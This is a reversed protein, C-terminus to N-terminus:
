SSSADAAAVNGIHRSSLLPPSFPHPQEAEETAAAPMETSQTAASRAAGLLGAAGLAPLGAAIPRLAARGALHFRRMM